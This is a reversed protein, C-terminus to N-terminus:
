RRGSDRASRHDTASFRGPSRREVGDPAVVAAKVFTTGVDIGLLLESVRGGRGADM